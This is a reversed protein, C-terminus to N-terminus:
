SNSCGDEGIPKSPGLSAASSASFEKGTEAKKRRRPAGYRREPAVAATQEQQILTKMKCDIRCVLGCGM